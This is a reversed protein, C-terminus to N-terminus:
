SFTWTRKQSLLRYSDAEAAMPVVPVTAVMAELVELNAMPAVETDPQMWVTTAMSVGTAMAVLEVKAAREAELM